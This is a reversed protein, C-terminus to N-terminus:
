ITSGKLKTKDTYDIPITVKVNAGGFKLGKAINTIGGEKQKLKLDASIMIPINHIKGKHKFKFEYDKGFNSKLSFPQKGLPSKKFDDGIQKLGYMVAGPVSSPGSSIKPAVKFLDSKLEEADRNDNIYSWVQTEIDKQVDTPLPKVVPKVKNVDVGLEVEDAGIDGETEEPTPDEKLLSTGHNKKYSEHLGLIRNKESESILFHKKM